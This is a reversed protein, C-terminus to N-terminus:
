VEHRQEKRFLIQERGLLKLGGPVASLASVAGLQGFSFDEQAGIEQRIKQTATNLAVGGTMDVLAAKAAGETMGRKVVQGFMEKRGAKQLQSTIFARSAAMKAATGAGGTFLSLVGSPSAITAALYDFVGEGARYTRQWTTEDKTGQQYFNPMAKFADYINRFNNVEDDEANKLYFLTTAASVENSEMWRM